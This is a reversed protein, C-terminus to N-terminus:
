SAAATTEEGEVVEEDTTEDDEGETAPLFNYKQMWAYYVKYPSDYYVFPETRSGDFDYDFNGDVTNVTYEVTEYSALARVNRHFQTLTKAPAKTTKDDALLPTLDNYLVPFEMEEYSLDEDGTSMLKGMEAVLTKMQNMATQLAAKKQEPTANPDNLVAEYATNYAQFKQELVVTMHDNVTKMFKVLETDLEGCRDFSADKNTINKPPITEKNFTVEVIKEGDVTKEKVNTHTVQYNVKVNSDAVIRVYTLLYVPETEDLHDADNDSYNFNLLLDKDSGTPLIELYTVRPLGMRFMAYIVEKQGDGLDKTSTMLYTNTGTNGTAKEIVWDILATNKLIAPMNINEYIQVSYTDTEMLDFVVREERDKVIMETEAGGVSCKVEFENSKRTDLTVISLEYGPTDSAANTNKYRFWFDLDTQVETIEGTKPDEKEGMVRIDEVTFETSKAVNNNYVYYVARHYLGETVWTKLQYIGKGAADCDEIWSKLVKNQSLISKDHGTTYSINYGAKDLVVSDDKVDNELSFDGVHFGLLPDVLSNRNQEKGSEWIDPSMNKDPDPYAIFANGTSFLDMMYDENLRYVSVNGDNDEVLRYNTNEVGYQLLNRFDPNTNLYTVVEMSRSVSKTYSCVGFMNGYIDETTATPLGVVVPYYTVGDIVYEGKRLISADGDIFKVASKTRTDNEERFYDKFRFENLKLYDEAFEEDEFLSNFGLIVSGRNLEEISRYHYGFLSFKDLSSYNQDDIYWYHALLDLCDSYSADIPIVDDEFQWMLNLFSYLNDNYLGDIMGQEWYAHQNYKQMLEKNLLMYKYSGITRNNPVAYTTGNYKAASLLTGSIYQKLKKSSSGLETDLESLWNRSIFNMYMEEGAIYIIDVQNELLEPYKIVTMGFENTETEDVVATEEGTGTEVAETEIEEPELASLTEEYATITQELKAEYEDKTLFNIVLKTKFKSNTISNIARSVAAATANSVEKDCVVWMSLTMASESAESTINETATDDNKKSCSTLVPLVLMALCLLLCILRKKM